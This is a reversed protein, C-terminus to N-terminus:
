SPMAASSPMSSSVTARGKGSASGNPSGVMAEFGKASGSAYDPAVAVEESDDTDDDPPSHDTDAEEGHDADDDPRRDDTHAEYDDNHDVPPDARARHVRERGAERHRRRVGIRRQSGAHLFLRRHADPHPRM